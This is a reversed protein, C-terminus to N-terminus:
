YRKENRELEWEPAPIVPYSLVRFGRVVNRANLIAFRDMSRTEVIIHGHDTEYRVTVLKAKDM